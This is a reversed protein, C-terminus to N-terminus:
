RGWRNTHQGYHKWGDSYFSVDRGSIGSPMLRRKGEFRLVAGYMGKLNGTARNSATPTIEATGRMSTGTGDERGRYDFKLRKGFELNGIPSRMLM